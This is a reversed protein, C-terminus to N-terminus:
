KGPRGGEKGTAQKKIRELVEERHVQINKPADIGIYVKHSPSVDKITITIDRGIMIREGKYRSLILM